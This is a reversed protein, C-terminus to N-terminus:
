RSSMSDANAHDHRHGPRRRSRKADRRELREVHEAILARHRIMAELTLGLLRLLNRADKVDHGDEALETIIETQRIVRERALAIHEDARHLQYHEYALEM